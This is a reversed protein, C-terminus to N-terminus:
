DRQAKNQGFVEEMNEIVLLSVAQRPLTIDLTLGAGQDRLTTPVQLFELEGALKLQTLQAHSPTQPSGMKKWAEFANSHEADVRWHKIKHDSIKSAHYGELVLTVEASPGGIDDDHYHWLMVYINNTEDVTAMVGVDPEERVSESLLTELAVQHSSSAEIREGKMKAFMRHVNLIPLDVDNSALVRFGAFFPQNEFEFAWTLAGELDVGHKAALEHKRAFTAATYSSYMAGNRYDLHPGRDAAAGEPDSEGIIIPKGALEPISAIAAFAGDIVRLHCGADMRVYQEKELFVPSGKAHFSIFDLPTGIEGTAHNRGRVCHQLFKSMYDGGTDATEPGGIVASPLARRVAAVAYDNLACFEEHTGQWYGLNPENWTEWYWTKVEDEGYREIVHKTWQYCIEAWKEYSKPMYSWGTFIDSYPAGPTWSHQYPEPKVSLAKPMFGLQVYPTVNNSLLTDYIRDAITWDFIGNGHEDETYLNTSGWKLAHIGEGTNFLQHARFFVRDNGGLQGLKSLLKKGDEMYVYNIEDTGFFRYIPRLPGLRRSHNINVRVPFGM